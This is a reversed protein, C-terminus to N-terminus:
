SDPGREVLELFGHIFIYYYYEHVCVIYIYIYYTYYLLVLLTRVISFCLLSVCFVEGAVLVGLDRVKGNEGGGGGGKLIGM